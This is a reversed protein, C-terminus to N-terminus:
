TWTVLVLIMTISIVCTLKLTHMLTCELCPYSCGSAPSACLACVEDMDSNSDDDMDYEDLDSGSDQSMGDMFGMVHAAGEESSSAGMM